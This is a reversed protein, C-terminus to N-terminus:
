EPKNSPLWVVTHRGLSPLIYLCPTQVPMHKCWFAQRARKPNTKRPKKITEPRKAMGLITNQSPQFILRERRRRIAGVYLTRCTDRAMMAVQEFHLLAFSETALSNSPANKRPRVVAACSRRRSLEPAHHQTHMAPGDSAQRTAQFVHQM